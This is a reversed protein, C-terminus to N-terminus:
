LEYKNGFMELHLKSFDMDNEDKPSLKEDPYGISIIAEVEYHQPIKLISKVYDNATTSENYKRNRIQIWCAGLGLDEAMLLLIASVISCDEVWVDSIKPNAIIVIGLSSNKLFEAGHKAKSLLKLKEKDKVIIFEWPNLGRSSPSLLGAKLLIEIKEKEIEKEKYKRISRRKKILEFLM